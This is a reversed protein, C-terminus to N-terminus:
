IQFRAVTAKLQEALRSLEAASAAVQEGGQRIDGVAMSIGSVDKAM